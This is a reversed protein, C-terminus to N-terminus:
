PAEIAADGTMRGGARLLLVRPSEDTTASAKEFRDKALVGDPRWTTSRDARIRSFGLEIIVRRSWM